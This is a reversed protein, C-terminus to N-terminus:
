ENCTNDVCGNPCYKLKLGEDINFWTEGTDMCKVTNTIMSDTTYCVNTGTTGPTCPVIEGELCKDKVCATACRQTRPAKENEKDIWYGYQSCKVTATTLAIGDICVNDAEEGPQCEGCYARQYKTTCMNNYPNYIYDEEALPEDIEVCPSPRGYREAINCNQVVIKSNIACEIAYGNDCYPKFTALDCATNDLPHDTTAGTDLNNLYESDVSGAGETTCTIGNKDTFTKEDSSCAQLAIVGCLCFAMTIKTKM